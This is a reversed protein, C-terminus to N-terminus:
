LEKNIKLVAERTMCPVIKDFQPHKYLYNSSKEGSKTAIYWMLALNIDCGSEIIEINFKNWADEVFDCLKTDGLVLKGSTWLIHRRYVMQKPEWGPKNM